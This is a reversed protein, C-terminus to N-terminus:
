KRESLAKEVEERDDLHYKTTGIIQYDEHGKGAVVVVDTSKAMAVAEAIAARRDPEIRYSAKAAKVGEEVMGIIALPDETRPNDSTILCFDSIEGAIRGMIPRKIPDRDGGCGFVCILRGKTFERATKLVKELGDPTHAYDVVVTVDDPSTFTQFRGPVIPRDLDMERLVDQPAFGLLVCAGAAALTNYVNFLGPVPYRLRGLLETGRYFDYAIGRSNMSLNEARFECEESLGYSHMPCRKQALIEKGAEDDGNVLGEECQLFLKEKAKLYNEMTKHYDLHDESLNTFVGLAFRIMGTRRQELAHSSVEMIVTSVGKEHMNEFIRGLEVAPPTTFVAEQAEDGVLIQNTGILGSKEHLAQAIHHILTTTTTKGNTGTVGVARLNAFAKQHFRGVLHVKAETLDAVEILSMQSLAERKELDEPLALAGEFVAAVAGKAAADPLFSTGDFNAGKECIFLSGKSVKRSDYSLSTIEEERGKQVIKCSLGSVLESLLM